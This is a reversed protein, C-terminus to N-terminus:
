EADNLVEETQVGNNLVTKHSDNGGAGVATCIARKAHYICEERSMWEPFEIPIVVASM